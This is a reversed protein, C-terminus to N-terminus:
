GGVASPVSESDCILNLLWTIAPQSKGNFQIPLRGFAKEDFRGTRQPPADACWGCAQCILLLVAPLAFLLRNM